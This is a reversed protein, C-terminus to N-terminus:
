GCGGTSEPSGLHRDLVVNVAKFLGETRQSIQEAEIENLLPRLLSEDHLIKETPMPDEVGTVQRLKKVVAKYRMLTKYHRDLYPMNERIWGRIGEQRAIILGIEDRVLSNDVYCELDHIMGGLEFMALVSDLRNEWAERLRDATPMPSVTTRRRIKRREKAAEQRKLKEKERRAKLRAARVWDSLKLRM